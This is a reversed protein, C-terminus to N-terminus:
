AEGRPHSEVVARMIVGMTELTVTLDGPRLIRSGGASTGTM